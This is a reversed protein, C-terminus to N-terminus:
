HGPALAALRAEAAALDDATNINLLEDESFAVHRPDLPTLTDILSWGSPLRRLREVRFLGVTPNLRRDVAIAAGDQPPAADALAARLRTALDAPLFPTDTPATLLHDARTADAAGLLAAVPGALGPRDAWPVLRAAVPAALHPALAAILAEAEATTRAVIGLTAAQTGLRDVVRALLPRGALLRLPKGGGIRSGDGGAYIAADIITPPM